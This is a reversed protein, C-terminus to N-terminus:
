ISSSAFIGLENYSVNDFLRKTTTSVWSSTARQLHKTTLMDCTIFSDLKDFIKNCQLATLNNYRFTYLRSTELANPLCKASNKNEATLISGQRDMYVIKSFLSM